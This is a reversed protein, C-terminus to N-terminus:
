GSAMGIPKPPPHDIFTQCREQYINSPGDNPNHELAKNFLTIAEKWNGDRYKALGNNYAALTAEMNPFTAETHYALAEFVAVHKDKGKVQILDIDRLLTTSKLNAVTHECVLIHSGYYKNATELRAALNVSDGVVTYDMRKTSGISGAVVAGTGIGVGMDISNLRRLNRAQNIQKLALQM